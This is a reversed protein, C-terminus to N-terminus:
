AARDRSYDKVRKGKRKKRDIPQYQPSPTKPSIPHVDRERLRASGVKKFLIIIIIISERTAGQRANLFLAFFVTNSFLNRWIEWGAVKNDGFRTIYHFNDDTLRTINSM